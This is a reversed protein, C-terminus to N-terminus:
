LYLRSLSSVDKEASGVDRVFYVLNEEGKLIGM